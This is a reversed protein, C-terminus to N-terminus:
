SRARRNRAHRWSWTALVGAVAVIMFETIGVEALGHLLFWVLFVGVLALLIWDIRVATSVGDDEAHLSDKGVGRRGSGIRRERLCSRPDM